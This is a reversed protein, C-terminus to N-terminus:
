GAMRQPLFTLELNILSRVLSAPSSPRRVPHKALMQDVLSALERPAAPCKRRLQPPRATRQLRLVDATAGASFPVAGTLMRFLTVGLSYVDKAVPSCPQQSLSEPAMYEATGTVMRQLGGDGRGDIFRAFGLDVLKADGQATLFINSPKIDGHSYGAKALDAMAQAAQRAIWVATAVPLPGDDVLRQELTIGDLWEFVVCCRNWEFESRIAQVVYQSKLSNAVRAENTLLCRATSDNRWEPRLRKLAGLTGTRIDRVQWIESFTGGATRGLVVFGDPVEGPLFGSHGSSGRASSEHGSTFAIAM